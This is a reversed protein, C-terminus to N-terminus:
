RDSLPRRAVLSAVPRLHGEENILEERYVLIETGTFIQQLEGPALLYAPEIEPHQKRFEETLTETILIGGPKLAQIYQDWLSRELYYFNIILDFMEEPLKFHRLDAQVAM